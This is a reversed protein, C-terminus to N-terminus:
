ARNRAQRQRPPPEEGITHPEVPVPGLRTEDGVVRNRGSRKAVYLAADARAIAERMSNLAQAVGISATVSGLGLDSVNLEEISKRIDEGVQMAGNLDTDLLVLLFEEGGYRVAIDTRRLRSKLTRALRRIVEDGVSHGHTDNVAKFRDIDLMMVSIPYKQRKAFALIAPEQEKLFRRNYLGSLSDRLVLRFVTREAKRRLYDNREIVISCYAITTSAVMITVAVFAPILSFETTTGPYEHLNHILYGGVLVVSAIVAIELRGFRGGDWPSSIARVIGTRAGLLLPSAAFVVGIISTTLSMAGHFKEVGYLYGTLAVLPPAMAVAAVIQSAKQYGRFRLLFSGAALLFMVATNWGFTVPTGQSAERSLTAAFPSVVDLANLGAVYDVIRVLAMLGVALLLVLALLPTRLSRMSAVALGGVIFQLATLPHTASGNPIPRWIAEVDFAYAMLLLCGGAFTFLGAWHGLLM